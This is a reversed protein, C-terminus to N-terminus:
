QPAADGDTLHRTLEELEAFRGDAAIRGFLFVEQRATTGDRGTIRIVHREAYATGDVLEDVVDIAAHAVFTRLGQIQRGFEARDIWTGDTSQRYEDTFHRTLASEVSLDPENLLDHLAAAISAM